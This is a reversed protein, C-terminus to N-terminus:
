RRVEGRYTKHSAAALKRSNGKRKHPREIVRAEEARAPTITVAKNEAPVAFGSKYFQLCKPTEDKTDNNIAINGQLVDAM